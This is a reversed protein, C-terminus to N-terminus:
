GLRSARGHDPQMGAPGAGGAGGPREPRWASVPASAGTVVPPVRGSMGPRRDRKGSDLPRRIDCARETMVVHVAASSATATADEASAWDPGFAASTDDVDVVGCDTSTGAGSGATGAVVAGAVATGTAAAGAVATAAVAAGSGTTGAVAAGIGAPTADDDPM